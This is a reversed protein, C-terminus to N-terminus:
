SALGRNETFAATLPISSHTFCFGSVALYRDQKVMSCAYEGMEFVFTSTSGYHHWDNSCQSFVSQKLIPLQSYIQPLVQSFIVLTKKLERKFYLKEKSSLEESHSLRTIFLCSM